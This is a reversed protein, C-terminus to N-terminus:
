QLNRSRLTTAPYRVKDQQRIHSNLDGQECLELVLAISPPMVCVGIVKVINEHEGAEELASAERLFGTVEEQTLEPPYVLKIAVTESKFRGEYVKATGGAGVIKKTYIELFAFNLLEVYNHDRGFQDMTDALASAAGENLSIRGVLAANLNGGSGRGTRKAADVKGGGTHGRWYESDRQLTMLVWLPEVISFLVLHGATYMCFGVGRVNRANQTNGRTRELLLAVVYITRLLLMFSSYFIAAPRRLLRQQPAFRLAGYFAVLLLHWFLVLDSSERLTLSAKLADIRVAPDVEADVGSELAPDTAHERTVGYLDAACGTGTVPSSRMWEQVLILCFTFAGWVLSYKLARRYARAGAGKQMLFLALGELVVHFVAWDVAVLTAKVRWGFSVILSNIAGGGPDYRCAETEHDALDVIYEVNICRAENLSGVGSEGMQDLEVECCAAAPVGSTIEGTCSQGVASEVLHAIGALFSAVAFLYLIKIYAPLVLRRAYSASGQFARRKTIVVYALMALTSLFQMMSAFFDLSTFGMIPSSGMVLGQCEVGHTGTFLGGGLPM